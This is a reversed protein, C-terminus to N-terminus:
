NAVAGAARGKVTALFRALAFRQSPLVEVFEVGCGMEEVAHRVMGRVELTEAGTDLSILLRAGVPVLHPLTLLVGGASINVTRGEVEQSDWRCRARVGAPIREEKRQEPM